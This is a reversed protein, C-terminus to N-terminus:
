ENDQFTRPKKKKKKKIETNRIPTDEKHDAKISPLQEVLGGTNQKPQKTNEGIPKSEMNPDVVALINSAKDTAKTVREEQDTKQSVEVEDRSNSRKLFKSGFVRPHSKKMAPSSGSLLNPDSRTKLDVVNPNASFSGSRVSKSTGMPVKIPLLPDIEGGFETKHPTIVKQMQNILAHELNHFCSSDHNWGLDILEDMSDQLLSKFSDYLSKTILHSKVQQSKELHLNELTMMYKKSVPPCPVCHFIVKYFSKSLIKRDVNDKIELIDTISQKVTYIDVPTMELAHSMSLINTILLFQILQCIFQGRLAALREQGSYGSSISLFTSNPAAIKSLYLQVQSTSELLAAKKVSKNFCSRDSLFNMFSPSNKIFKARDRTERLVEIM